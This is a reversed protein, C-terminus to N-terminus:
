DGMGENNLKLAVKSANDQRCEGRTQNDKGTYPRGKFNTSFCTTHTTLTRWYDQLTGDTTRGTDM